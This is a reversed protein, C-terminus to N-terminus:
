TTTACIILMGPFDSRAKRSVGASGRRCGRQRLVFGGADDPRRRSPSQRTLFEIGAKAASLTLPANAAIADALARTESELDAEAVLRTLLGLRDAEAADIRRATFFLDKAAPGGVAASVLEDARRIASGWGDPRSASSRETAIRLDCSLALGFGGGLCFGRIMAIVPKSCEAVAQFAAVNAAEYRRDAKPM